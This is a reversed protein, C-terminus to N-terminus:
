RCWGTGGGGGVSCWMGVSLSIMIKFIILCSFFTKGKQKMKQSRRFEQNLVTSISPLPVDSKTFAGVPRSSVNQPKRFTHALSLRRCLIKVMKIKMIPMGATSPAYFLFTRPTWGIETMSPVGINGIYSFFEVM